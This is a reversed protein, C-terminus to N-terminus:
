IKLKIIQTFIDKNISRQNIITKNNLIIRRLLSLGYGHGDEKTTYGQEDIMSLDPIKKCRNSVEIIFENSDSYINVLIEKEELNIVEEIANDLIIGVARCLDYNTKSPIKSFDIEKINKDVNLLIKIGYDKMKLTKQYILGQLGGEPIIKTYTYLAEDDERKEKIIEDLYNLAKKNTKNIMGRIVLLQNKNEHNNVRQYDLMKEYESLHDILSKNEAKYKINENKENLAFFMIITYIILFLIIFLFLEFMSNGFYVMFVLVNITFIIILLFILLTFVKIRRTLELMKIYLKKFCSLKSLLLMVISISTNSLVNGFVSNIFETGGAPRLVFILLLMFTIESSVVVLQTTLTASINKRIGDKFIIYNGIFVILTSILLRVLANVFYFNFMTFVTMLIYANYIKLNKLDLKRQSINHLVIIAAGINVITSVLKVLM